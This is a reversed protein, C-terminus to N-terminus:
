LSLYPAPLSGEQIFSTDLRGTGLTPRKWPSKQHSQPSTPHPLNRKTKNQKTEKRYIKWVKSLLQCRCNSPTAALQAAHSLGQQPHTCPHDGHAVAAVGSPRAVGHTTAREQLPLNDSVGARGELSTRGGLERPLAMLSRPLAPSPWLLSRTDGNCEPGEEGLGVWTRSFSAM